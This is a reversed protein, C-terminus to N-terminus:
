KELEVLSQSHISREQSSATNHRMRVGGLVDHVSSGSRAVPVISDQEVTREIQSRSQLRQPQLIVAPSFRVELGSLVALPPQAFEQAPSLATCPKADIPMVSCHDFLAGPPGSSTTEKVADCPPM